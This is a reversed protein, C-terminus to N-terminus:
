TLRIPIGSLKPESKNRYDYLDIEKNISCSSINDWYLDSARTPPAAPPNM